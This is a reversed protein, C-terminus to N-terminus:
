KPPWGKKRDEKVLRFRRAAQDQQGAKELQKLNLWRAEDGSARSVPLPMDDNGNKRERVRKAFLECWHPMQGADPPWAIIFDYIRKRIEESKEEAAILKVEMEILKDMAKLIKRGITAAKQEKRKENSRLMLDQAAELARIKSPAGRIRYSYTGEIAFVNQYDRLLTM